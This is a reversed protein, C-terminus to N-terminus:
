LEFPAAPREVAAPGAAADRRDGRLPADLAARRRREDRRGHPRLARRLAGHHRLPQSLPDKHAVIM